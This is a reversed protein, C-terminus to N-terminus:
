CQLMALQGRRHNLTRAFIKGDKVVPEFPPSDWLDLPDPPQVDYHGYVLVTPLEPSVMKEGYVIPYGATPCVEVNDMGISRLHDALLTATDHVDKAYAPDASVSPKRLLDLLEDIFRQRNAEIYADVTNLEM